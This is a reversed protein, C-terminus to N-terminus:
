HGYPNSIMPTDDPDPEPAAPDLLALAPAIAGALLERDPRARALVRVGMLVGLLHRALDDAPMATTISGDAQGRRVCDRFFREIRGLVEAVAEGLRPDHPAVDLASNVVMCGKHEPDDLSRALVEDFYAAIGARPALAECRRIREAIRGEVYHALAKEFLSRKDGFANYLSAATLGTRAILDRMSTAEYGRNWFCQIAADLVAGEDFARPRAM